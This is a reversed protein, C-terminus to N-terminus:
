DFLYDRLDDETRPVERRQFYKAPAEAIDARLRAAYEEPTEDVERQAAYLRGDKTYKRSAEPTAKLPKLRPRLLVDYLCGEVRHGLSEAGVYYHSVQGDMALRRWYSTTADEIAESTTKHELLLVRGTARERVIGDVKGALLFTRSAAGTEPNLLPATFTAEVALVDYGEMTGAYREDYARLLERVAAEQFLDHARGSIRLMAEYLRQEPAAKWWGELGLHALRGFSVADDERRPRWGDLYLLRHRRKCDRWTRLRSNTLLNSM